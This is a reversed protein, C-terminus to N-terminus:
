LASVVSIATTIHTVVLTVTQSHKQFNIAENPSFPLPGRITMAIFTWMAVLLFTHVVLVTFPIVYYPVTYRRM